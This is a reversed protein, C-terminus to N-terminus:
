ARAVRIARKGQTHDSALARLADPAEEDASTPVPLDERLGPFSDFDDLTIARM